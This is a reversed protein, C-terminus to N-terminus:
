LKFGYFSGLNKIWENKYMIKANIIADRSLAQQKYIILLLEQAVL